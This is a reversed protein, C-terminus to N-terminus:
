VWLMLEQVSLQDHDVEINFQDHDVEINFCQTATV